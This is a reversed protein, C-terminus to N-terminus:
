GIRHMIGTVTQPSALTGATSNVFRLRVRGRDTADEDLVMTLQVGTPMSTPTFQWVGYTRDAWISYFYFDKDTDTSWSTSTEGTVEITTSSEPVGSGYNAVGSTQSMSRPTANMGRSKVTSSQVLNGALNNFNFSQVACLNFHAAVFEGTVLKAYPSTTFAAGGLWSTVELTFRSVVTGTANKLVTGDADATVMDVAEGKAFLGDNFCATGDFSFPFKCSTIFGFELGCGQIVRSANDARFEVGTTCSSIAEVVVISDLVNTSSAYFQVATGCGLIQPVHIRSLSCRVRLGIGSFNQIIPLENSGTANGASLEVGDALGGYPKLTARRDAELMATAPITLKTGIGHSGQFRIPSGILVGVAICCALATYSDTAAADNLAGFWKPLVAGDYQRVWAGSSAAVATAKIFVGEQTDATIQSSYDGARWLFRGEREAEMLFAVTHVTTDLAKLATRSAVFKADQYAKVSQQTPVKTASDSAMDDEDLVEFGLSANAFVINSTGVVVPNATTVLWGSESGVNGENVYVRTGKIVDRAGYFDRSRRWGSVSAIYIGNDITDTQNKVLVRDDAVLTVGDITQLGSLTINATTAVRCPGKIATSSSLGDLRDIATSAM